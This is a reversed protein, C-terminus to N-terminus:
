RAKTASIQKMRRRTKLLRVLHYASSSVRASFTPRLKLRVVAHVEPDSNSNFYEHIRDEHCDEGAVIYKKKELRLKSEGRARSNDGRKQPHEEERGSDEESEEHPENDYLSSLHYGM